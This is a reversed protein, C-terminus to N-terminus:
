LKFEKILPEFGMKYVIIKFKDNPYIVENKYIKWTRENQNKWGVSAGKNNSVIINGDKINKIEPQNLTPPIGNPWMESLMDKESLNGYDSSNVWKNLENNLVEFTPKYNRDFYLNNQEM